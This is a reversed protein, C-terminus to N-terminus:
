GVQSEDTPAIGRKEIGFGVSLYGYAEVNGVVIQRKPSYLKRKAIVGVYRACALMDELKCPNSIIVETQLAKTLAQWTNDRKSLDFPTSKM